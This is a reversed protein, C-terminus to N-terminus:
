GPESHFLLFTKHFDVLRWDVSPLLLLPPRVLPLREFSAWHLEEMEEEDEHMRLDTDTHTDVVLVVLALRPVVVVLRPVVLM